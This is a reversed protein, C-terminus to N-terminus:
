SNKQELEHTSYGLIREWAKNLKLFNGEKDAICLLGLSVNFFSEFEKYRQTLAQEMEKHETIDLAIKTHGIITGNDDKVPNTQASVWRVKGDPRLIRYELDFTGGNLYNEFEAKVMPKDDSHVTDLLSTPDESLSQRSRGWVREYASNIYLVESCDASYLWLVESLNDVIHKFIDLNRVCDLM